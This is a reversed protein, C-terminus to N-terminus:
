AQGGAQQAIPLTFSFTSGKGVESEVRIRGGHAEVLMRTIYLGLGLGEAKRAGKARYFREFLHPLDDPSIGRGQDTVAIEVAHDTQRASVRVPTGPDSYKLANTLLNTLIRELRNYDASVPPLEDPVDLVIRGTDMATASRHLYEPLYAGLDVTERKLALQQGEARAADVLDSIMADMRDIGRDVAKLSQMMLGDAGSAARVEELVQVHGKIIALPARLDHSVLHILVKQQEQLEHLPTIDTYTGVVGIISLDHMRIPAATVSIWADTVDKHRFVLVQGAVTEGHLARVAPAEDPTLRRGEPTRAHVDVWQPSDGYEEEVLIGDLLQRAAANAQLIEGQPSYLILGDAISNLTADLEAVRRQVEQQLQIIPTINAYNAVAGRIQGDPTTIPGASASTWVSRGLPPCDVVIVVGQVREGQLARYAPLQELPFPTGDATMVRRRAWCYLLPERCEEEEFGLLEHAPDNMRVIHGDPGYIVLGDAIGTITADLEAAREQVETLLRERETVDTWVGVGGIIQEDRRLPVTYNLLVREQGDANTILFQEGRVEDGHLARVSPYEEIIVPRGDPHRMQMRAVMEERPTVTPDLGLLQVLAPNVQRFVGQADFISVGHPLASFIAKLEAARTQVEDLLHEREEEARKMETIDVGMIGVGYRSGPLPVRFYSAQWTTFEGPKGPIPNYVERNLVPDGTNLVHRLLPGFETVFAPAVDGILRGIIRQRDLGFYTPTTPDTKIYRFDEDIINLIGPSNAFFAETTAESVRLAEEAVKRARIDIGVGVQTGDPLRLNAWESVVPTGDKATVTFERWGPELSQMYTAVQQRYAPDPYAKAMIEGDAADEETWGLIQRFAQNFRFARLNPDYITIMVPITDLISQILARERALAEEARRRETIDQAVAVGGIINGDRDRVPAANNLITGREGNFREIDIVEGRSVEGKFVARALAWNEPEILEGTDAFWGKYAHYEELGYPPNPKGWISEVAKNTQIVTGERDAIWVAVPLSDLVAQLRARETELAEEAQRRATIDEGSSLTGIIQGQDDRLVTNHFAVLREEGNRTVLYNEYYDPLTAQGTLLRVFVKRVAKRAHEPVLLDIWCQGLIEESMYGLFEQGRRNLLMVRADRDLVVLMVGAIDLYQQARDREHRLAEEAQKRETIDTFLVAAYRPRPSYANVLLWRGRTPAFLEVSVPERTIAVRCLLEIWTPDPLPVAERYTHGIVHERPMQMYRIFAPNGDIYRWDIPLGQADTIAEIVLFAEQMSDFLERYRQESEQLAEEAQKRETIDQTVGLFHIAEGRENFYVRGWAALWRLEGDALGITRYETAYQGGHEGRLVEQVIADVRERDDPHLGRLFTQYDVPADPPLGFHLKAYTNWILEGTQPRFDFAGLETSEIVLRLQEESEHLAVEAQRRATIDTAIEGAGIIRGEADYIPAFRLDYVHRALHPDGFEQVAHVTEGHLAREWVARAAQQEEPLHALADLMNTGIDIDVGFVQKFEQRYASNFFTYRFGTDIAAIVDQTGETIGELLTYAERLRAERERLEAQARERESIDQFIVTLGEASPYARVAFLTQLPAYFAEFTVPHQEVMALRYQEDFMTGVAEPFADWISRGLLADGAQQLLREAHPNLYTFRWERDLAFIADSVRNLTEELRTHAIHNHPLQGRLRLIEKEQARIREHLQRIEHEPELM